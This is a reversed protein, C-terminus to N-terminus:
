IRPARPPPPRTELGPNPPAFPPRLQTVTACEVGTLTQAVAVIPSLYIADGFSLNDADFFASTGATGPPSCFRALLAAEVHGRDFGPLACVDLALKIPVLVAQGVRLDHGMRRYRHLFGTITDLLTADAPKGGRPDVSVDAEYWSGTWVLEAAARQLAPNQAALQAYDDATIARLLQKRFARPAFLKAEAILEPDVGG